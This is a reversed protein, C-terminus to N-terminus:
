AKARRIAKDTAFRATTANAMEMAVQLVQVPTPNIGCKEWTECAAVFGMVWAASEDARGVNRASEIMHDVNSDFTQTANM